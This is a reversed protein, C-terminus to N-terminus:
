APSNDRDQPTHGAHESVCCDGVCRSTHGGTVMRPNAGPSTTSAVLPAEIVTRLTHTIRAGTFDTSRVPLLLCTVGRQTSCPFRPEERPVRNHDAPQSRTTPAPEGATVLLEGPPVRQM